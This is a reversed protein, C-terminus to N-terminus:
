QRGHSRRLINSRVKRNNPTSSSASYSSSVSKFPEQGYIDISLSSQDDMIGRPAIFGPRVVITNINSNKLIQLSIPTLVHFIRSVPDVARIIAAGQCEPLGDESSAMKIRMGEFITCDPQCVSYSLGAVSLVLTPLLDKFNPRNKFPPVLVCVDSWSISFPKLSSLPLDFNYVNELRNHFYAMSMLSRLVTPHIKSVKDMESVVSDISSIYVPENSSLPVYKESHDFNKESDGYLIDWVYEPVSSDNSPIQRADKKISSCDSSEDSSKIAFLHTPKISQAILKLTYLGLGTTWGMTNVYLPINLHEYNRKFIVYLDHFSKIFLSTCKDISLAGIYKM